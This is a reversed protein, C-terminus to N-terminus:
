PSQLTSMSPCILFNIFISFVFIYVRISKNIEIKSKLMDMYEDYIDSTSLEGKGEEFDNNIILNYLELIQIGFFSSKKYSIKFGNYEKPNHSGTVQIAGDIDLCYMSYYNVPTPLIGIDIVNIGTSLVGAILNEKLRPTTLRIDGSIAIKKAGERKIYSGFSKGIKIVVDDSFDTESIGRIDYERFVDKNLNNSM